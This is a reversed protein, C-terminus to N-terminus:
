PATAPTILVRGDGSVRVRFLEGSACEVRYDLREQRSYRQVEGCSLHQTALILTLQERVIEAHTPPVPPPTQCGALLCVCLGLAGRVGTAPSV